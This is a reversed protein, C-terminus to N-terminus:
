HYVLANMICDPVVLSLIRWRYIGKNPALPVTIIDDIYRKTRAGYQLLFDMSYMPVRNSRTASDWETIMELYIYLDEDQLGRLAGNATRASDASSLQKLYPQKKPIEGGASRTAGRFKRTDTAQLRSPCARTRKAMPTATAALCCPRLNVDVLEEGTAGGVM